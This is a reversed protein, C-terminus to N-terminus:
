RGATVGTSSGGLELQIRYPQDDQRGLLVPDGDAATRWDELQVGPPVDTLAYAATEGSPNPTEGDDIWGVTRLRTGQEVWEIWAIADGEPSWVPVPAVDLIGPSEVAVQQGAPFGYLESVEDDTAVLYRLEYREGFPDDARAPVRSLVLVTDKHPDDPRLAAHVPTGDAEDFRALIRRTDGERLVLEDDEVVVSRHPAASPDPAPDVVCGAISVLCVVV